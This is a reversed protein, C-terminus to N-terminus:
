LGITACLQKKTPPTAASLDIDAAEAYNIYDQLEGTHDDHTFCQPNRLEVLSVGGIDLKQVIQFPTEFDGNNGVPLCGNQKFLDNSDSGNGQLLEKAKSVFSPNTCAASGQATHKFVHWSGPALDAAFVQSAFGLVAILCFFSKKM